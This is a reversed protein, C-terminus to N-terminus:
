RLHSEGLGNITWTQNPCYRRSLVAVTTGGPWTAELRWDGCRGMSFSTDGGRAPVHYVAGLESHVRLNRSTENVIRFGPRALDGPLECAALAFALAAVMVVQEVEYRM